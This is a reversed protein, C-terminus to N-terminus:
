VAQEGFVRVKIPVCVADLHVRDFKATYEMVADDGRSRVNEVIPAVQVMILAVPAPPRSCSCPLRLAAAATPPAPAAAPRALWSVTGLISSFDIRPRATVEQLQHLDMNDAQYVKMTRSSQPAAVAQVRLQSVRQQRGLGVPKHQTPVAPGCASVAISQMDPARPGAAHLTACEIADFHPIQTLSCKSCVTTRRLATSSGHLAM